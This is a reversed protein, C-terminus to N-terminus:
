RLFRKFASWKAYESQGRETRRKRNPLLFFLPIACFMLWNWNEPALFWLGFFQLGGAILLLYFLRKQSEFYGNSYAAQEVEKKWQNWRKTFATANANSKAYRRLDALSVEDDVGLDGFFWDVL